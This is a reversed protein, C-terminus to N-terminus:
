MAKSWRTGHPTDELIIGKKALEERIADAKKFDKAKRARERESVLREIESTMLDDIDALREIGIIGMVRDVRALFREAEILSEEDVEEHQALYSNVARVCDFAAGLAGATNFDDNLEEEYRAETAEITERLVDDREKKRPRHQLAFSLEKWGNQLRGAASVAHNLAEGSFSLPSRYHASLMFLRIALPSYLRMAERVSVINGLSKSMKEEEILLYGNHIWYRVFAKGTAAEAQAIENEHHPFLLDSGGAHIDITEGLIDIAMASCEIHWGPRGMGWPSDWAPEGPKQAKWLAFDLPHRKKPDIEVRAGSLLEELSQKSLRGYGPFSLVDFYVDGDVVYAHGREILREVLKIIQPIYHTARPYITARRIGLADADEFYATIFREALEDVSIGLDRAKNIMKDDIDTFNQVYVVEYGMDEMHRRLIDFLIFPRANGVHIYDYVTPGCVYFRVKGKELPTFIEKQHTLDNYLFLPM